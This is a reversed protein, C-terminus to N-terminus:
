APSSSLAGAVEASAVTTGGLGDGVAGGSTRGAEVAAGRATGEASGVECSSAVSAVASGM